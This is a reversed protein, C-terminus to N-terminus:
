KYKSARLIATDRQVESKGYNYIVSEVIAEGMDGMRNMLFSPVRGFHLPMAISGANQM